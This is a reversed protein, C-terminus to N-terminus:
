ITSLLKELENSPMGTQKSVMRIIQKFKEDSVNNLKNKLKKIMGTTDGDVDFKEVSRGSDNQQNELELIKNKILEIDMKCQTSPIITYTEKFRNM